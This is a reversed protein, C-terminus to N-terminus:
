KQTEEAELEKVKDDRYRRLAASGQEGDAPALERGQVLDNPDAVMMGLAANVHCGWPQEPRLTPRPQPQTCDPPVVVARRVYVAVENPAAPAFAPPADVAEGAALGRRAFEAKIATLRSETVPDRRNQYSYVDIQDRVGIRNDIIFSQLANQADATLGAESERFLVPHHLTVVEVMNEAAPPIQEWKGHPFLEDGFEGQRPSCAAALFALAIAAAPWTRPRHTHRM